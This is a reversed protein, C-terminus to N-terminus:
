GAQVAFCAEGDEHLLRDMDDWSIECEGKGDGWDPGWSNHLTFTKAKVNVGNCLIAHGGLRRGRVHILGDHDPAYMGEYWNVGLVAPGHRSVGIALDHLSFSWRYEKVYGMEAAAKVAALVSSGSYDEGEWEDIQQARKYIKRALKADAPREKPRGAIWHARSFGTCAGERGQDLAVDCRWTYSRPKRTDVLALIPYERSREDFQVLRDLRPDETSEGNRLAYSM